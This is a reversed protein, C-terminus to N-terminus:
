PAEDRLKEVLGDWAEEFDAHAAPLQLMPPPVPADSTFWLWAFNVCSSVPAEDWVIRREVDEAMRRGVAEWMAWQLSPLGLTIRGEREARVIGGDLAAAIASYPDSCACTSWDPTFPYSNGGTDACSWAVVGAPVGFLPCRVNSQDHVM